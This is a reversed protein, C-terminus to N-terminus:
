ALGVVRAKCGLHWLACGMDWVWCGWGAWVQAHCEAISNQNEELQQRKLRLGEAAGAVRANAADVASSLRGETARFIFAAMFKHHSGCGTQVHCNSCSGNLLIRVRQLVHLGREWPRLGSWGALVAGCVM